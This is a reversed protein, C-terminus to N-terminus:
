QLDIYSCVSAEDLLTLIIKRLIIESSLYQVRHDTKVTFHQGIYYTQFAEIGFKVGFGEEGRNFVKIEEIKM